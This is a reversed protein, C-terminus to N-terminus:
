KLGEYIGIGHKVHVVGDGPKMDGFSLRKAQKQFDQSATTSRSRQKKGFFDEDRLFYIKEDFIRLSEALTRPILHILSRNQEQQHDWENWLYEEAGVIRPDFGLKELTLKLRESQTQNRTAVYVKYHDDKWAQLKPQFNKFWLDTGVAYTQNINAFEFPASTSYTLSNENQNAYEVKSFLIKKSDEPYDLNEFPDYFGDLPPRITHKISSSYEQKLEEMLLDSKRSVELPDLIWVHIPTSFHCLPSELKDYFFPLLFATAPDAQKLVLSRLLQDAVDINLERDKLSERTRALLNVYNEELFFYEKPLVLTFFGTENLSRQNEPSFFRLSEITDGFLEIRVPLEHAPSFIDIIGGRIAFQGLDEVLPVSLYGMSTLQQSIQSPLDDSKKFTQTKSNLVSFPLTKQQLAGISAVFIEGAKANQASQLWRIRESSTQAKPELMSYPSVDFHPLIHCNIHPEFFSLSQGFFECESQSPLLVLHPLSNIKKSLTQSLLHSLVLVSSTGSISIESTKKSLEREIMKELHLSRNEAKAM